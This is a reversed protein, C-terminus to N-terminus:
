LGAMQMLRVHVPQPLGAPPSQGIPAGRLATEIANDLARNGTSNRLVSHQVSGSPSVWIFLDAKYIEGRIGHDHLLANRVAFQVTIAYYRHDGVPPADIHLPALALVPANIPPASVIAVESSNLVLMYGDHFIERASLGTGAILKRLASEPPMAGIVGPFNRGPALRMDYLIQIGTASGYANIATALPHPPIAFIFQRGPVQSPPM